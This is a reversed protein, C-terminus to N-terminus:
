KRPRFYTINGSKIWDPNFDTIVVRNDKLGTNQHAIELLNNEYVNYVIATHHMFKETYIADGVSYEAIVNKFQIIDGPLIKTEKTDYEEGFKYMGDWDANAYDLANAALDWCEGRDVKTGLVTEVYELVKKNVEPLNNSSEQYDATNAQALFLNLILIWVM